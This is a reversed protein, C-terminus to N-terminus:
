SRRILPYIEIRFPSMHELDATSIKAKMLTLLQEDGIILSDFSKTDNERNYFRVDFSNAVYKADRDLRFVINWDAIFDRAAGQTLFAGKAFTLRIVGHADYTFANEVGLLENGMIEPVLNGASDTIEVINSLLSSGRQAYDPLNRLVIIDVNSSTTTDLKVFLDEVGVNMRVRGM